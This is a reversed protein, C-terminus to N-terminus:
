SQADRKARIKAAIKGPLDALFDIGQNVHALKILYTVDFAFLSTACFIALVAGFSCLVMKWTPYDAYVRFSEWLTDWYWGASCVHLVFVGWTTKSVAGIIAKVPKRKVPVQMFFVLLSTAMIVMFPSVYSIWNDRYEYLTSDEAILGLALQDFFENATYGLGRPTHEHQVHARRAPIPIVHPM